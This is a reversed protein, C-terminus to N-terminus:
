RITIQKETEAVMAFWGYLKVTSGTQVNNFNAPVNELVKAFLGGNALQESVQEMFQYANKSMSRLTVKVVDGQLYPKEGSSIGEQFPTIFDFGDSLGEYFTGDISFMDPTYTNRVGNKFTRIWYYDTGGTLDVAYLKAYYGAKNGQEEQKYEYTISDISTNRKMQDTAAFQL